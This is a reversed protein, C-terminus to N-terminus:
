VKSREDGEFNNSICQNFRFNISMEWEANTHQGSYGYPEAHQKTLLHAKHVIM